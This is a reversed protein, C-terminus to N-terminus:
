WCQLVPGGSLCRRCTQFFHPFGGICVPSFLTHYIYNRFGIGPGPRSLAFLSPYGMFSVKKPAALATVPLQWQRSTCPRFIRM